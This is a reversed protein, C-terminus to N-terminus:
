FTIVIKGRLGGAATLEHAEALRELPLVDGIRSVLRGASVENAITELVSRDPTAHVAGVEIGREPMPGFPEFATIFRGGDRVAGIVDSGLLAADFLADVGSPALERVRRVFAESSLRPITHTPNLSVVFAEDGTSASAIVDIGDAVLMQVAFAGVAGSAGTVLVTDGPAAHLMASAQSATSGNLPLSGATPWDVSESVQALWDPLASVIEASVGEGTGLEFWPLVGIVHDGAHFGEGDDIVEGAIDFGLLAPLRVNPTAEALAGSRILTDVSNVASARMRVRVRGAEVVPEPREVLRLVEPGGYRPLEVARM